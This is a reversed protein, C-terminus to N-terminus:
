RRERLARFAEVVAVRKTDRVGDLCWSADDLAEETAEGHEALFAELEAARRASALLAKRHRYLGDLLARDSGRRWKVENQIGWELGGIAERELRDLEALEEESLAKVDDTPM